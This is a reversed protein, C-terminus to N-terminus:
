CRQCHFLWPCILVCACRMARWLKHRWVACLIHTRSVSNWLSTSPLLSIIAEDIPCHLAKELPASLWLQDIFMCKLESLGEWGECERRLLLFADSTRKKIGGKSLGVTLLRQLYSRLYHGTVEWSHFATHHVPPSRQLISEERIGKIGM